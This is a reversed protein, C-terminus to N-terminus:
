FDVVSQFTPTDSAMLSLFDTDFRARYWAEFSAFALVPPTPTPQGEEVPRDAVLIAEAVPKLHDRVEAYASHGESWGSRTCAFDLGAAIAAPDDAAGAMAGVMDRLLNLRRYASVRLGEFQALRDRAQVRFDAEGRAASQAQRELEAVFAPM